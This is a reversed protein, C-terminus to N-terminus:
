LVDSTHQTTHGGLTLDGETVNVGEKGKVVGRMGKARTAVVSKDM